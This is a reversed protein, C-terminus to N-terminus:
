DLVPPRFEVKFATTGKNERFFSTFIFTLSRLQALSVKPTDLSWLFPKSATNFERSVISSLLERESSSVLLKDWIWKSSKKTRFCSSVYQFCPDLIVQRLFPYEFEINKWLYCISSPVFIVYGANMMISLPNLSILFNAFNESIVEM